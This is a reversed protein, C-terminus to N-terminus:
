KSKLTIQKAVLRQVEEFHKKLVSYDKAEFVAKGLYYEYLINLKNDVISSNQAYILDDNTKILGKFNDSQIVEYGEPIDVVVNIKFYYPFNFEIKNTRNVENFTYSNIFAALPNELTYFNSANLPMKSINTVFYKDEQYRVEKGVEDDTIPIPSHVFRNILQKSDKVDDYFYGTFVDKRLEQIKGDRFSYKFDVKNESLFQNIQVFKEDQGKDIIFGYDNFLSLPAYKYTNKPLDVANVLYNSGDSLTITNVLYDFQDLYPYSTIVKGNSRSSVLVLDSKIGKANIIGNLLINLEAINGSKSDLIDKQSKGPYIGKFNNWKFDNNFKQIIFDLTEQETKGTPISEAYNKVAVPNSLRSYEERLEKKIDSWKRLVSKYGNDTGYTSNSVTYGALQLRISELASKPNYVYEIDNYSPINVLEWTDVNKRNKYKEVLQKGVSLNTYDANIGIQLKFKSYLTPLEHQFEWADINYLQKSSLTYQYEIISGVKVNPIAFRVAKYYQNVDVDYIDKDALVSNVYTGNVLNISQAKVNKISSYGEKSYYPLNINAEDIAKEDLIKIRRKVTLQHGAGTVDLYGEEYLIVASADKDFSVSSTQLQNETIKEFGSLSKQAFSPTLILGISLLLYYKLKM